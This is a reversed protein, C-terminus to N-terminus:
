IITLNMKSIQYKQLRRLKEYNKLYKQLIIKNSKFQKIFSGAGRKTTLTKFELKMLQNRKFELVSLYEKIGYNESMMFGKLKLKEKNKVKKFKYYNKIIEKLLWKSM